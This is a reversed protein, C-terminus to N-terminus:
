LWVVSVSGSMVDFYRGLVSKVKATPVGCAKHLCTLHVGNSVCHALVFNVDHDERFRVHLCWVHVGNIAVSEDMTSVGGGGGLGM